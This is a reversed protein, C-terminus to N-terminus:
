CSPCKKRRPGYLRLTIKYRETQWNNGTWVVRGRTVPRGRDWNWWDRVDEGYAIPISATSGDEYRIVYEGIATGDKANNPSGWQTGHLIHLRAVARDVSIGAAKALEEPLSISGLQIAKKGILFKVGCLACDGQPLEALGNGEFDGPGSFDVVDRNGWAQLDLPILRGTPQVVKSVGTMESRKIAALVSEADNKM